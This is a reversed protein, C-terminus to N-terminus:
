QPSIPALYLFRHTCLGLHLSLVLPLQQKPRALQPDPYTLATVAPISIFFPSCLALTPNDPRSTHIHPRTPLASSPAQPFWPENNIKGTAREVDGRLNPARGRSAARLPAHMHPAHLMSHGATPFACSGGTGVVSILQALSLQLQISILESSSTAPRILNNYRTKNLLDDM